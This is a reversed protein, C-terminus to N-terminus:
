WRLDVLLMGVYGRGDPVSSFQYGEAALFQEIAPLLRANGQPGKSHHGSGTVLYITELGEDALKPLMRTLFEVAEAVHLGHLDMLQESYLQSDPNRSEFIAQAACFHLQKMQANLDHGQRSLSKALARNGSRYAQTAGMFCKNRACAVQYAEERLALYQSSVATGTTVWKTVSYPDKHYLPRRPLPPTPRTDVYGHTYENSGPAVAPQLSVARAFNMSLNEAATNEHNSYTPTAAPANGQLSPFMDEAEFNLMSGDGGGEGDMEDESDYDRRALEDDNLKYFETFDHSFVCHEGQLCTGRLWFRCTIAHTEHLFMCDARRCDGALYHRCVQVSGLAEREITAKLVAHAKNGDLSVLRLLDGLRTPDIDPFKLQLHGVLEFAVSWFFSDEDELANGDDDEEGEEVDGHEGDAIAAAEYRPDYGYPDHANNEDHQYEDDYDATGNSNPPSLQSSTNPVFLPADAKLEGDAALIDHIGSTSYSGGMQGQPKVGHAHEDDDDDKIISEALKNMLADDDDDDSVGSTVGGGGCAHRRNADALLSPNAFYKVLDDVLEQAKDEDEPSLWGMLVQHVNFKVDEADDGDQGSDHLMGVIYPAFVGDVGLADLRTAAWKELPMLM